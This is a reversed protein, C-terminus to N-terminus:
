MIIWSVTLLAFSPGCFFNVSQLATAAIGFIVLLAYVIGYNAHPFHKLLDSGGLLYTGALANCVMARTQLVSSHPGRSVRGMARLLIYTRFAGAGVLSAVFLAVVARVANGSSPITFAVVLDAVGPRTDMHAMM